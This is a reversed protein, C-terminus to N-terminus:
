SPVRPLSVLVDLCLSPLVRFPHCLSLQARPLSEGILRGRLIKKELKPAWPLGRDAILAFAHRSPSLLLFPHAPTVQAQDIVPNISHGLDKVVVDCHFCHLTRKPASPLGGHPWALTYYTEM